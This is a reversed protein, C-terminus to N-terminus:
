VGVWVFTGDVPILEVTSNPLDAGLVPSVSLVFGLLSIAVTRTMFINANFTISPSPQM